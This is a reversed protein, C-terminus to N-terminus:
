VTWSGYSAPKPINYKEKLMDKNKLWWNIKGKNTLPFNRVLVYSHNGNDHVAVIEVPRLCLWIWCILLALGALLLITIKKKNKIRM